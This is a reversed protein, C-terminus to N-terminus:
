GLMIWCSMAGRQTPLFRLMSRWRRSARIAPAFTVVDRGQADQQHKIVLGRQDILDKLGSKIEFFATTSKFLESDQSHRVSASDLKAKAQTSTPVESRAGGWWVAERQSKGLLMNERATDPHDLYFQKFRYFLGDLNTDHSVTEM